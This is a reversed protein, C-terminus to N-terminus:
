GGCGGGCGSGCSSGCSSGGADCGGDASSGCSSGCGSGGDDRRRQARLEAPSILGMTLLTAASVVAHPVAAGTPQGFGDIRRHRLVGREHQYAWGTPLGLQADLAFLLPLRPGLVSLRQSRCAGAWTRAICDQLPAGLAEAERHSLTRGFHRQQWAALGAPDVRLWVHWVSDAAKSPLACAGQRQQLRCAEFFQALGITCRLWAGDDVALGPFEEPAQAAWAARIDAPIRSAALTAAPCANRAASQQSLDQQRAWWARARQLLNFTTRTTTNNM